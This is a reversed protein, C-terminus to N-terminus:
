IRLMIKISGQVAVSLMLRQRRASYRQVYLLRTLFPSIPEGYFHDAKGGGRAFVANFQGANDPGMSLKIGGKRLKAHLEKEEEWMEQQHEQAHKRRVGLSISAFKLDGVETPVDPPWVSALKASVIHRSVVCTSSRQVMTVSEAGRYVLDECIDMSSNGAGIVVVKLGRYPDGGHFDVAHLIKGTFQDSDAVAPM